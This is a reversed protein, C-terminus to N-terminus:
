SRPDVEELHRRFSEERADICTMVQLKPKAPSQLPQAARAGICCRAGDARFTTRYRSLLVRRREFPSFVEIASLLERWRNNELQLLRDPSWGHFQALQLLPYARQDDSLTQNAEDRVDALEVSLRDLAGRYGYSTKAVYEVALRDLMLRIAM